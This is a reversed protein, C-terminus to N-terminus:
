FIPGCPPLLYMAIRARRVEQLFELSGISEPLLQLQDCRTLLMQRLNPMQMHINPHLERIYRSNHLDLIQTTTFDYLTTHTDDNEQPLPPMSLSKWRDQDPCTRTSVSIINGSSEEVIITVGKMDDSGQDLLIWNNRHNNVIGESNKITHAVTMNNTNDYM